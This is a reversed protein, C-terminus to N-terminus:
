RSRWITGNAVLREVDLASERPAPGLLARWLLSVGVVYGAFALLLDTM